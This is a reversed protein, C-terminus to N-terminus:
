PDLRMVGDGGAAVIASIRSRPFTVHVEHSTFSGAATHGSPSGSLPMTVPADLAKLCRKLWEMVRVLARAIARATPGLPEVASGFVAHRFGTVLSPLWKGFKTVLGSDPILHDCM